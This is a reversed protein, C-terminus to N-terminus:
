RGKAVAEPDCSFCRWTEVNDVDKAYAKGGLNVICARCFVQTCKDCYVIHESGDSCCRCQEYYGDRGVNFPTSFYFARCDKCIAVHKLKPHMKLPTKGDWECHGHGRADCHLPLRRKQKPKPKPKEAGSPPRSANAAFKKAAGPPPSALEARARKREKAHAKPSQSKSALDNAARASAKDSAKAGGGRAETPMPPTKYSGDRNLQLPVPLEEKRVVAKWVDRTESMLCLVRHIKAGVEVPATDRLRKEKVLKRFKQFADGTEHRTLAAKLGDRNAHRLARADAYIRETWQSLQGLARREDSRAELARECWGSADAGGFATSVTRLVAGVRAFVNPDVLPDRTRVPPPPAAAAALVPLRPIAPRPALTTTTTVTSTPRAAVGVPNMPAIAIAARRPAKLQRPDVAPSTDARRKVRPWPASPAPVVPPGRPAAPAAPAPAAPPPPAPASPAPAEEQEEAAAPPEPPAEEENELDIVIASGGPAGPAGAARPRAPAPAEAGAGDDRRVFAAALEDESDTEDNRPSARELEWQSTSPKVKVREANTKALADGLFADHRLENLSIPKRCIPCRWYKCYDCRGVHKKETHLPHCKPHRALDACKSRQSFRTARLTARLFTTLDFCEVHECNTGKGPTTMRQHSLPDLLSVVCEDDVLSVDDHSAAAAAAAARARMAIEAQTLDNSNAKIQEVVAAVGDEGRPDHVNPHLPMLDTPTTTGITELDCCFHPVLTSPLDVELATEPHRELNARLHEVFCRQVTKRASGASGPMAAAAHPAAAAM